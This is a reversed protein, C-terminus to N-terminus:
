RIPLKGRKSISPSSRPTKVLAQNETGGVIPSEHGHNDLVTVTYAYSEAGTNKDLFDYVDGAVAAILRFAVDSEGAKKRWVRHLVIQVGLADNAPNKSWTVQNVYRTRFLSEDKHTTWSISLPQFLRLIQINRVKNAAARRDDLVTLSVSFTGWRSYTHRVVRGSARDGDGFNWSYQVIGGDPDRSPSGDFTIEVPYIGSSPTFGFDAVPPVNVASVDITRSASGTKGENDTVTLRATFLGPRTYTHNVVVGAGTTGDGFNWNYGVITGDPDFSSSGNFNVTLPASGSSPSCSFSATPFGAPPPAPPGTAGMNCWIEGWSDWVFYVETQSPNAAVDPYTNGSSNPVSGVGSWSGGVKNNYFVGTGNGYGGEQWCCYLNSGRSHLSPYHLLRGPCIRTTPAFGGGTWYTYLVERTGYDDLVPTFVVHAIGNNDVEVVPAQQKFSGERVIQPTSWSTGPSANRRSYYIQYIADRQTWVAYVWNGGVAIDAYKAQAPPTIQVVPEWNGGIRARSYARYVSTIWWCTFIDGSSTVAVRAGDCDGSGWSDIQIPAGWSGGSNIRMSIRNKEVYIVYLNDNGDIDIGCARYDGTHVRGNNSLNLPAGWAESGIDYKSYFCDGSTDSYYEAWVVHLNGAADVDIRPSTSTMSPSRSVNAQGDASSYFFLFTAFFSLVFLVRRSEERM